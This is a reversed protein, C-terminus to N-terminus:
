RASRPQAGSADGQVEATGRPWPLGRLEQELLSVFTELDDRHVVHGVDPVVQLRYGLARLLPHVSLPLAAGQAPVVVLTGPVQLPPAPAVAAPGRTGFLSGAFRPDLHANSALEVAVEAADWHMAEPGLEEPTRPRAEALDFDDWPRHWAPDVFVARRPRLGPLALGLLVGGLSHGVALDADVPLTDVLDMALDAMAYADSRPSLGHGRLDPALVTCGLDALAPGVRWWTAASDSFGHVLM